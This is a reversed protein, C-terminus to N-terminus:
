FAVRVCRSTVTCRKHKEKATQLLESSHIAHVHQEGLLEGHPTSVAAALLLNL